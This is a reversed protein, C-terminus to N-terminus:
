AGVESLRSPAPPLSESGTRGLKSQLDTLLGSCAILYGRLQQQLKQVKTSREDAYNQWQQVMVDTEKSSQVALDLDVVAKHFNEGTLWERIASTVRERTRMRDEEARIPVMARHLHIVAERMGMYAIVAYEPRVVAWGEDTLYAKDNLADSPFAKSVLIAFETKEQHLNKELQTVFEDHWKGEYKVSVVVKGSFVNGDKVEAVIDAGGVAAKVHSFHDAPFASKLDKITVLEGPTGIGPGLIKERVQRLDTTLQSLNELYKQQVDRIETNVRVLDKNYQDLIEKRDTREGESTKELLERQKEMIEISRRSLTELAEHVQFEASLREPHLYKVAIKGLDIILGLNKSPLMEKMKDLHAQDLGMNALLHEDM